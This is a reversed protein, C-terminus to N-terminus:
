RRTSRGLLEFFADLRKAINAKTTYRPDVLDCEVIVGPKGTRRSVQEMIVTQGVSFPKCSKPSLIVLGDAEYEQVLKTLLEARVEGGLNTYCWCCREAISELPRLPDPRWGRPHLSGVMTYTAAVVVAGAEYFRRRLWFFETWCPTGELVLRYRQVPLEGWPTLPGRREAARRRLEFCLQEYYRVCENTGRYATVIPAMYYVGDFFADFPSPNCRGCSFAEAFLREAEGALLVQRRLKDADLRKGALRELEPVVVTRLQEALLSVCVSAMGPEALYPVQVMVCPCGFRDQLNEFWPAYTLCGCAALLLLDPSPWCATGPGRNSSFLEGIHCKVYSCVEPTFGLQESWAIYGASRNRIGARLAHIEPYLPLLDLAVLLESLNGPVFTYVVKKGADRASQLQSLYQGILQKQLAYGLDVGDPWEVGKGRSEVAAQEM